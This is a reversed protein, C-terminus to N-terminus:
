KLNGQIFSEWLAKGVVSWFGKKKKTVNKDLYESGFDSKAQDESFGPDHEHAGRYTDWEGQINAGDMPTNMFESFALEREPKEAKRGQLDAVLANWVNENDTITAHLAEAIGNIRNEYEASLRKIDATRDAAGDIEAGLSEPTNFHRKFWGMRSKVLDFVANPDKSRVAELYESEGIKYKKCIESVKEDEEKMATETRNMDEIADNINQFHEPDQIALRELDCLIVERVGQPGVSDAIRKFEPFSAVIEEINKSSLRERMTKVSEMTALFNQREGSLEGVEEPSLQGSMIKEGLEHNGQEELHLGFLRSQEKDALIQKITPGEIKKEGADQAAKEKDEREAKRFKEFIPM